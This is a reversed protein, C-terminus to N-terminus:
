IPAPVLGKPARIVIYSGNRISTSKLFLDKHNYRLVNWVLTDTMMVAPHIRM